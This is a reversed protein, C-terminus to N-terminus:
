GNQKKKSKAMKMGLPMFVKVKKLKVHKGLSSKGMTMGNKTYMSLHVVPLWILQRKKRHFIEM